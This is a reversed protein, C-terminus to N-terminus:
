LAALQASLEDPTVPGVFKHRIIGQADIVYTEPVGYVGFAIAARNGEDVLTPYGSGHKELWGRITEPEDQYVVGYFTVRDGARAAAALLYPHEQKCPVCWTAWFNLVVPKGRLSALSVEAGDLDHLTFDPAPKGILPSDFEHPDSDFGKALIFLLPLVLAFGAVLVKWNM